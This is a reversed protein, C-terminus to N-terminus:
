LRTQQSELEYQDCEDIQDRHVQVKQNQVTTESESFECFRCKKNRSLNKNKADM